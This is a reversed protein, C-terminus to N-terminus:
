ERKYLVKKNRVLRRYEKERILWASIVSNKFATDEASTQLRLIVQVRLGDRKIEKLVLCSLPTKDALIYDPACLIDQLLPAIKEFHGPHHSKIHGIREETIIVENSAINEAVCRYKELDIYCVTQVNSGEM